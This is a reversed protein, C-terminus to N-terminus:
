GIKSWDFERYRIEFPTIHTAGAIARVDPRMVPGDVKVLLIETPRHILAYGYKKLVLQVEGFVDTARWQDGSRPDILVVMKEPDSGKETELHEYGNIHTIKVDPM